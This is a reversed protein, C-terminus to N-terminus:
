TRKLCLRRWNGLARRSKRFAHYFPVCAKLLGRGLMYLPSRLVHEIDDSQRLAVGPHRGQKVAEVMQLVSPPVSGRYRELWSPYNYVMHVRYPHHINTYCDRVWINASKLASSWNVRSYYSCKEHVQKPFLQEYHYMFIGKSAMSKASIPHLTALDRGRDNIVTPPRHKVYRYSPRWAFVRRVENMSGRLYFGDVLFYPSGSFTRFQFSVQSVWPRISLMSLIQEMDGPLYFEDVDVQWLWDGTARKAYAESMEDKEKWFGNPHGEDEATVVLVKGEIDEEAQFRRLTEMTFDRSHGDSTAVQIAAPSAGEVVIIQHAFPYISRLNYRLFPEGNLVIMGFTIRMNSAINRMNEELDRM